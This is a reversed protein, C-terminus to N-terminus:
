EDMDEEEDLFEWLFDECYPQRYGDEVDFIEEIWEPWDCIPEDYKM